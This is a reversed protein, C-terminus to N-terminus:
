RRMQRIDQGMDTALVELADLRNTIEVIDAAVIETDTALSAIANVTAVSVNDVAARLRYLEADHQRKAMHGGVYGGVLGGGFSFILLAILVLMNRAIFM